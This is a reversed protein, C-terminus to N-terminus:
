DIKMGDVQGFLMFGQMDLDWNASTSRFQLKWYVGDPVHRQPTYTKSNVTADQWDDWTFPGNMQDSSGIRLEVDTAAKLLVEWEDVKCTNHVDRLGTEDQLQMLMPRTLLHLADATDAGENVHVAGAFDGALVQEFLRREDKLSVPPLASWGGTRPDFAWGESVDLSDRMPFFFELCGTFDNRLSFCKSKQDWNVEEQLYDHLYGEDIYRYSNADTWWVGGRGIGFNMSGDSCVANKSVAGIGDLVVKAGFYFPENIFSVLGMQDEAFISIGSGIRSAAQIRTDLDEVTLGGANNSLTPTWVEIDQSDSWKVGTGRVGTGLALIFSLKKMLRTAGTILGEGYYSLSPGAPKYLQPSEVGNNFITFDGYHVFDIFTAPAVNTEDATCTLGSAIEEAAPGFWRYISGAQTAAWAWRVGNNARQQSLGRVDAADGTNFLLTNERRRKVRGAFFTVNEAEEWLIKLLPHIDKQLGSSVINPALASFFPSRRRM